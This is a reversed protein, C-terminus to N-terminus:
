WNPVLQAISNKTRTSHRSQASNVIKLIVCAGRVRDLELQDVVLM